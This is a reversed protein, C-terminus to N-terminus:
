GGVGLEVTCTCHPHLPPLEEYIIADSNKYNLPHKDCIECPESGHRHSVLEEFDLVRYGSAKGYNYARMIESNDIMATRHRLAQLMLGAFIADEAKLGPSKMTYRDLSQIVEKRLKMMYRTIHDNIKEDARGANVQWIEVNIDRIGQRYAQRALLSLREAAKGFAADVMVQLEKTRAGRNRIQIDIDNRLIDYATQLPPQQSFIYDLTPVANRLGFNDKNVKASARTGHQNAPKNKNTVSNGGASKTKNQATRSVAESQSTATGPEDLSQLIVKDREILGYQTMAWDGDGKVFMRGKSNSTPWGEGEFPEYGLEIRMEPHTIANKLFIDVFHNEKAQRAEFDIEKFKLYVKNEEDFLSGDSFTSELMLERIIFSEFQSAFEKQDAKTDDILNRSMTQATSNGQISIKGNRRVVLVHNPVEFAWVKDRYFVKKIQHDRVEVVTKPHINIRGVGKHAPGLSSRLGLRSTLEQIGDLLEKSSSSYSFGKRGPRSDYSGDGSVLAVLLLWLQKAPLNLFERPIKKNDSYTGVNEALYTWLSKCNIWFRSCSDSDNIYENFRFPLRELVTRIKIVKEPNTKNSQSISIAWKNDQKALTGESIFYGLFELWDDMDINNFPGLNDHNTINPSYDVQPLDFTSQETGEVESPSALLCFKKVDIDQVERLEWTIKDKWGIRGFYLKHNPTVVLDVHRNSIKYLEGEYDYTLLGDVPKQFELQQTEPNITGVKDGDRYDWYNKWGSDTLIQTQNDFCRNATGGEGMDVSSNGLGTFIRQKFHAIVKEVAVPGAKTALPIIEHREPTVWCGDTPMQAVKLQIEQVEDKGDPNVAAPNNETGVKYHFLPFLHQYVLLEINEEIRRLARIDDKVSALVPTGVSYGERKDYYFHVVDDPSFEKATKGYVEQQYKKLRGYEDRKFRVTEPAMLFYGAVPQLKKGDPTTRVRGGSAPEKRVKVWFANSTRILAWITQSILVPFPTGTATEMQQFRRKVYRVREPKTGVFEYGEKLFLNKKNRFARRVYSETDIIRGCEALDWEPAEWRLSPARSRGINNTYVKTPAPIVRPIIARKTTGKPGKGFGDNKPVITKATTSAKAM